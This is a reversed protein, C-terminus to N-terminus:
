AISRELSPSPSGQAGISFAAAAVRGIYITVHIFVTAPQYQLYRVTLDLLAGAVAYQFLIQRSSPFSTVPWFFVKIFPSRNLSKKLGGPSGPLDFFNTDKMVDVISM